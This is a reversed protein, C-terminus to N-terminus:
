GTAAPLRAAEAFRQLLRAAPARRDLLIWVLATSIVLDQLLTGYVQATAGGVGNLMSATAGLLIAQAGVSRAAGYLHTLAALVVGQLLMFVAIGLNGFNAYAEPLLGVSMTTTTVGVEDMIGYDLVM